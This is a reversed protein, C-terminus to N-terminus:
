SKLRSAASFEISRSDARFPPSIPQIGLAAPGALNELAVQAYAPHTTRNTVIVSLSLVADPAGHTPTIAVLGIDPPAPKFVVRLNVFNPLSPPQNTLAAPGKNFAIMNTGTWPGQGNIETFQLSERARLVEATTASQDVWSYWLVAAAPHRGALAALLPTYAAVLSIGSMDSIRTDWAPAPAGKEAFVLDTTVASGPTWGHVFVYVDTIGALEGPAVAHLQGDRFRALRALPTQPQAGLFARHDSRGIRAATIGTGGSPLDVAGDRSPDTSPYAATM